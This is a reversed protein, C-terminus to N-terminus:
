PRLYFGLDKEFARIDVFEGGIYTDNVIKVIIKKEITTGKKNDLTFIINMKQKPRITHHGRIKVGISFGVGSKSVNLIILRGKGVAPPLMYYRGELNTEKRYHQRFDLHVIFPHKCGCRVKITHRENKYKTISVHRTTKCAPCTIAAVDDASVFSRVTDLTKKDSTYMNKANTGITNM